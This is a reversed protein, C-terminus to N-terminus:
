ESFGFGRLLEGNPGGSGKTKSLLAKYEKTIKGVVSDFNKKEEEIDREAKEASKMAESHAEQLGAVRTEAKEARKVQEWHAERLEAIKRDADVLSKEMEEVLLESEDLINEPNQPTMHVSRITNETNEDKKAAQNATEAVRKLEQHSDRLCCLAIQQRELQAQFTAIQLEFGEADVRREMLENSAAQYNSNLIANSKILKAHAKFMEASVKEKLIYEDLTDRLEAITADRDAIQEATTTVRQEEKIAETLQSMRTEDKSRDEELLVRAIEAPQFLSAFYMEILSTYEENLTGDEDVNQLLEYFDTFKRDMKVQADKSADNLATMLTEKAEESERKHEEFIRLRAQLKLNGQRVRDVNREFFRIHKKLNEIKTTAQQSNSQLNEIDVTLQINSKKLKSLNKKRSKEREQAESIILEAGGIKTQLVDAREREVDRSERLEQVKNRISLKFGDLGKRNRREIEDEELAIKISRSEKAQLAILDAKLIQQNAILRFVVRKLESIEKQDEVAKKAASELNANTDAQIRVNEAALRNYDETRSELLLKYEMIDNTLKSNTQTLGAKNNSLILLESKIIEMDAMLDKVVLKEHEKDDQHGQKVQKLEQKLKKNANSLLGNEREQRFQLHMSNKELTRLQAMLGNLHRMNSNEMDQVQTSYAAFNQDMVSLQQTKKEVQALTEELQSRLLQIKDDKEKSLAEKSDRVKVMQLYLTRLNADADEELSEVKAIECNKGEIITRLMAEMFKTRRQGDKKVRLLTSHLKQSLTRVSQEYHQKAELLKRAHSGKLEQAQQLKKDMALTLKTIKEDRIEIQHLYDAVDDGFLEAIRRSHEQLEANVQTQLAPEASYATTDLIRDIEIAEKRCESRITQIKVDILMDHFPEVAQEQVVESGFRPEGDKVHGDISSENSVVSSVDSDGTTMSADRTWRAMTADAEQCKARTRASIAQLPRLGEALSPIISTALDKEDARVQQKSDGNFAHNFNSTNLKDPESDKKVAVDGCKNSITTQPRPYDEIQYSSDSEADSLSVDEFNSTDIRPVSAAM